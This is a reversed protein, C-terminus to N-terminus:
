EYDKDYYGRTKDMFEKIEEESWDSGRMQECGRFDWDMMEKSTPQHNYTILSVLASLLIILIFLSFIIAFITEYM